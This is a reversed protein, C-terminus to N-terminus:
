QGDLGSVSLMTPACAEREQVRVRAHNGWKVEQRCYCNQLSLVNFLGQRRKFVSQKKGGVEADM